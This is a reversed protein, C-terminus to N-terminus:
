YLFLVFRFRAVGSLFGVWCFVVFCIVVVVIAVRGDDLLARVGVM